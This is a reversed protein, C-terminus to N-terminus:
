YIANPVSGVLVTEGVLVSDTFCMPEQKGGALVLLEGTIDIYLRHVTQNYGGSEFESRFESHVAGTVTNNFELRWGTGSLFESNFLSGVPIDVVYDYENGLIDDLEVTVADKLKNISTVNTNVAQVEGSGSYSIETLMDYSLGMEETKESVTRGFLESMMQKAKLVTYEEMFPTASHEFYVVLVAASLVIVAAIIKVASFVGGSRHGFRKGFRARFRRRVTEMFFCGKLM